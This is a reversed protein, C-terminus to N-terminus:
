MYLYVQLLDIGGNKLGWVPSNEVRHNWKLIASIANSSHQQKIRTYNTKRGPASCWTYLCTKRMLLRESGTGRQCIWCRSKKQSDCGSWVYQVKSLFCWFLVRFSRKETNISWYHRHEPILSWHNLICSILEAAIRKITQKRKQKLNVNKKRQSKRDYRDLTM